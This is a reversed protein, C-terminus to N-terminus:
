AGVREIPRHLLRWTRWALVVAVAGLAGALGWWLGVAGLGARFGLLLCLPIGFLWFGGLNILMPVRTDGAGRLVGATVAQLGDVLQFVGAVPLLTAALAVTAADTTYLQALFRPAVLFAIATLGMFGVGYAVAARAAGRAAVPDRAGVAHGVLVAAAQGVGLPVMFTLSALNIAVQHAAVATTGIRGMLLGVMGFATYELMSQIGIPAGLRLMRLLPAPALAERRLPRLADRLAPWALALLLAPLVWRGITTAVAAGAVGMRPAGLNGFIFVWNLVVNLLNAAVIALLIPRMRTLAQLTQRLVLFLYFPLVGPASYRTYAGAQPIVDVPQGAARLAPEGLLMLAAVPVSLLVALVGGRQVGRAIGAEDRAGVAQAVIPDLAFLVGMGFISCGFYYLNGLAVGALAAASVRGVMMTDVVGMLMLGVQVAVVPLALALLARSDAPTPRLRDLLNPATM